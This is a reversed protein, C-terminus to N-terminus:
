AVTSKDSSSQVPTLITILNIKIPFLICQQYQLKDYIQQNLPVNYSAVYGQTTMNETVDTVRIMSFALEIFIVLGTDENIRAKDVVVWQGSHTASNYKAYYDVWEQGSRALNSAVNVRIWSPVTRPNMEQYNDKNFNM